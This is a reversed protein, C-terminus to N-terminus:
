VVRDLISVSPHLARSLASAVSLSAFALAKVAVLATRAVACRARVFAAAMARALRLELERAIDIIRITHLLLNAVILRPIRLQMKTAFAIGAVTASVAAQDLTGAVVIGNPALACVFATVAGATAGAVVGSTHALAVAAVVTVVALL